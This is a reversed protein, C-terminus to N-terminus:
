EVLLDLPSCTSLNLEVSVVEIWLLILDPEHKSAKRLAPITSIIIVLFHENHLDHVHRFVPLCTLRFHNWDRNLKTRGLVLVVPPSDVPQINVAGLLKAADCLGTLSLPLSRILLFLSLEDGTLHLM